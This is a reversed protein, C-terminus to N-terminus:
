ETGETQLEQVSEFRIGTCGFPPFAHIGVANIGSRLDSVNRVYRAAIWEGGGGGLLISPAAKLPDEFRETMLM